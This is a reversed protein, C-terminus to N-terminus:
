RASERGQDGERLGKLLRSSFIERLDTLMKIVPCPCSNARLVAYNMKSWM